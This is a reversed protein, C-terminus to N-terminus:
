FRRKRKVAVLPDFLKEWRSQYVSRSAHDAPVVEHGYSQDAVPVCALAGADILAAYRELFGEFSDGIIAVDSETVFALLQGAKGNAAPQMDLVVNDGDWHQNGAIPLWRPHYVLEFYRERKREPVVPNSPEYFGQQHRWTEVCQAIPQLHGGCPLWSVQERKQGDHLLLFDRYRAPLTFGLESEAKAVAAPDGPGALGLTSGHERLWAEIRQLQELM